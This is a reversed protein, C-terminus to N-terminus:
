SRAFLNSVFYVNSGKAFFGSVFDNGSNQVNVKFFMKYTMQNNTISQKYGKRACARVFFLNKKINPVLLVDEIRAKQWKDNVLEAMCLGDDALSVIEGHAGSDTIWTDDSLKSILEQIDESSPLVEWKNNEHEIHYGCFCKDRDKDTDKQKNIKKKYFREPVSNWTTALTSYNALLSGLIKAMIDVEIIDRMKQLLLRSSTSKQTACTILGRLQKRKIATLILNMAKSNDAGGASKMRIGNVLNKLEHSMLVQKM